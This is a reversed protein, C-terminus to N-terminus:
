SIAKAIFECMAQNVEISEKENPDTINHVHGIRKDDCDIDMFQYPVNRGEMEKKLLLSESRLFDDKRTSVFLPISLTDLYTRPSISSMYAKEKFRPGLLRTTGRETMKTEGISVFDYVPCNILVAEVHNEDFCYGLKEAVDKNNIALALLLAFHGGASDGTIVFKNGELGLEGIHSFIYNICEACEDIQEKTDKHGDNPHYDVSIFDFGNEVLKTGFFFNEKRNGFIYSGGHIDIVCCGKKEGKGYILDFQNYFDANEEYPIDNREEYNEHPPFLKRRKKNLRECYAKILMVSLLGIKM